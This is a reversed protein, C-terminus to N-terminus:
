NKNINKKLNYKPLTIKFEAGGYERSNCANVTGYHAEFVLKSLNLGIGAHFEDANQGNSEFRDFIKEAQGPAFGKGDDSICVICRDENDSLKVYVRGREKDIADRCNSIINIFAEVLWERDGQIYLENEKCGSYEVLKETATARVVDDIVSCLEVDEKQFNVKGSELRSIKMLRGVFEKLRGIQFFCEEVYRNEGIIEGLMEMKLTIATLPTKIQHSINETFNQLQMNRKKIVENEAVLEKRLRRNEKALSNRTAVAENMIYKRGRFILIASVTVTMLVLGLLIWKRSSYLIINIFANETYGSQVAVKDAMELKGATISNGFLEDIVYTASKPNAQYVGGVISKIKVEYYIVTVALLLVFAGTILISNNRFKKRIASIEKNM